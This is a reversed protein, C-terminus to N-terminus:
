GPAQIPPSPVSSFATFQRIIAVVDAHGRREAITLATEGRQLNLNCVRLLHDCFAKPLMPSSVDSDFVHVPDSVCPAYDELHMM